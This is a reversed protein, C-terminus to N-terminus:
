LCRGVDVLRCSESLLVSRVKFGWIPAKNGSLSASQGDSTVYSQNLATPSEDCLCINNQLLEIHSSNYNVAITFFYWYVWDDFRSGDNITVGFGLVHVYKILM